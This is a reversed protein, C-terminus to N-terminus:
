LNRRREFHRAVAWTLFGLVLAEPNEAIAANFQPLDEPYHQGDADISIMHTYGQTSLAEAATHLAVGSGIPLM